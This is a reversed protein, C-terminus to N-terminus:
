NSIFRRPKHTRHLKSNNIHCMYPIRSLYFIHKRLCFLETQCFILDSPLIWNRIVIFRLFSFFSKIHPILFCGPTPRSPQFLWFLMANELSTQRGLKKDHEINKSRKYLAWNARFILRKILKLMILLISLLSIIFSLLAWSTFSNALTHM